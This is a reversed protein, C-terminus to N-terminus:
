FCISCVVFGLAVLGPVPAKSEARELLRTVLAPREGYRNLMGALSARRRSM